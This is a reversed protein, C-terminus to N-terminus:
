KMSDTAKTDVSNRYLLVRTVLPDGRNCFNPGRIFSATSEISNVLVSYGEAHTYTAHGPFAVQALFRDTLQRQNALHVLYTNVNDSYSQFSLYYVNM